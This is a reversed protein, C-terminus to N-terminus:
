SAGGRASGAVPQKRRWSPARDEVFCLENSDFWGLLMPGFYVEYLQDDVERLGVVEGSLVRSVYADQHKWTLEGASSIRRLQMGAAYEIEPLRYPYRRASAVYVEAPTRYGLAEHPRECNYEREFRGFAEQQQALNAQPPSATEQKLTQHMREHRGNQEPHGPEIREHRIGLHMWWISLRSLGGPALSAFPPGNDTRIAHPLGYEEFTAECVARAREGDTKEVHRCRLVYRSAADSLTLPDCRSGDGCRFWGKYDGCWVDNPAQAHALPETCPPTRRRVHRPHALGERRLLESITSAAPWRQERQHRMLYERLKRPGWRRHAQRLELIREQVEARMRQPSGHPARSLEELGEEGEERYRGIWKYATQRSIEFFRCLEAVPTEGKTWEAIFEKREEVAKREKWPM